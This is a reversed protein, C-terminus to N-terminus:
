SAKPLDFMEAAPVRADGGGSPIGSTFDEAREQRFVPTIIKFRSGIMAMIGRRCESHIRHVASRYWYWIGLFVILCLLSGLGLASFFQILVHPANDFFEPLLVASYGLGTVGALAIVGVLRCACLLCRENREAASLRDCLERHEATDEHTMLAKLFASQKRYESM